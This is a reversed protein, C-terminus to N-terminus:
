SNSFLSLFRELRNVERTERQSVAISVETVFLWISVQDRKVVVSRNMVNMAKRPKAATAM